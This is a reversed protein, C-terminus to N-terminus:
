GEDSAEAPAGAAEGPVYISWFDKGPVRTRHHTHISGPYLDDLLERQSEAHPGGVLYLKRAPDDVHSRASEAADAWDPPSGELLGNWDPADLLWALARYDWGNVWGVYYVHDLDGGLALFGRVVQAGQRTTHTSGDYSARYEEFYRQHSGAAMWLMLVGLGLGATLGGIRGYARRAAPLIVAPPLAALAVVMPLAASARSLSPNERPFALALITTVLALPLTLLLAGARWDRQRLRYLATVLGLVLLAGGVTELAPRGPPSHFWASDNTFNFMLLADRINPVLQESLNQRLLPWFQDPPATDGVLRSRSRGNFYLPRDYAYRLMPLIVILGMQAAAILHGAVPAPLWRSPQRLHGAAHADHLLKALIILPLALILPRFATYGWVGLGAVIALALFDNRGGRRLARLCLWLTLAAFLPAFAIRLAARGIQLHWPALALILAAALGAWRGAVERGLLYAAPLSLLGVIGMGLKMTGFSLPLGLGVLFAIWYFEMAERGANGPLFAPRQGALVNRIDGLKETHDSTMEYPLVGLEHFRFWAGVLLLGLLLLHMPGIRLDLGGSGLRARWASELARRDVIAWLCALGGAIWLLGGLRTITNDFEYDYRLLSLPNDTGFLAPVILATILILTWGSALWLRRAPDLLPGPRSPTPADAPASFRLRGMGVWWLAAALLFLLLGAMPLPRSAFAAADFRLQGLLALVLGMGLLMTGVRAGARPSEPRFDMPDSEPDSLTGAGDRDPPRALIPAPPATAADGIGDGPEARAAEDDESPSATEPDDGAETTAEDGRTELLSALGAPLAALDLRPWAWALLLLGAAIGLGADLPLDPRYALSRLGWALGALGLIGALWARLSPSRSM